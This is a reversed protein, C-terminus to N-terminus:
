QDADEHFLEYLMEPALEGNIVKDVIDKSLMEPVIDAAYPGAKELFSEELEPYEDFIPLSPKCSAYAASVYEVLQKVPVHFIESLSNVAVDINPESGEDLEFENNLMGFEYLLVYAHYSVIKDLKDMYADLAAGYPEAAMRVHSQTLETFVSILGDLDDAAKDSDDDDFIKMTKLSIAGVLQRLVRNVSGNTSAMDISFNRLADSIVLNLDEMATLADEGDCEGQKFSRMTTWLEVASMLNRMLNHAMKEIMEASVHANGSVEHKVLM